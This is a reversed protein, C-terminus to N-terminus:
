KLDELSPIQSECPVGTQCLGCGGRGPFGFNDKVYKAVINQMYNNCKQKDHGTKSLAGAPCRTICKGCANESYFLCYSRHDKYPRHSPAIQIKAIVSGARIAKGMPTILGDCLGFTGLGSAHAAHRESWKSALFFSKSSMVKWNPTLIPALAEYGAEKLHDVLYLRLKENTKEGFIRSRIWSENPIKSAKRHDVKTTETQPLIWSIVTLEGPSFSLHPYIESFIESPTWHFDGVYKKFDNYIPDAGNSFGVIPESWAKKLIWDKENKESALTNEPSNNIFGKILKEVWTTTVNNKSLSKM